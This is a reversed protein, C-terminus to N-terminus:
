VGRLSSVHQHTPGVCSDGVCCGLGRWSLAHALLMPLECQRGGECVCVRQGELDRWSCLHRLRAAALDQGDLALIGLFLLWGGGVCVCGVGTDNNQSGTM